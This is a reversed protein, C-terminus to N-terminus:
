PKTPKVAFEVFRSKHVAITVNLTKANRLNPLQYIEYDGGGNPGWSQLDRGQEDTIKALTMRMGNSLEPEVQILFGGPKEGNGFNQDTFRVAPFIKLHFGNLNTEAFATKRSQRNQNRYNWVDQQSGLNVPVNTVSWVEDSNFGATRSMEVRLKWVPEDPWLGWQYTMTADGNDDRGNSWSSNDIRNGTADSTEIHMPQWNTVVMGNQETHFVTEVARNVPDKAPVGTGRNFSAVNNLRTLTVNLDGDSQKDPLPEATWQPFAGRVPNSIIFQGKAFQQGRQGFNMIRLIIKRERRHFADLQIGRIEMGSKIQQSSGGSWSGACATAAKDQALVQYNPWQNAKHESLIWVVLTDNTTNFSTPGGGLNRRTAGNIKVAPAKHHKGYDVGLVTLKMGDSLTLVQPKRWWLFGAVATGVILIIVVGWLIFKRM